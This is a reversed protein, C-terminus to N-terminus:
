NIEKVWINRFQIRDGHHQLGIPGRAPLDPLPESVLVQQGNLYVTMRDDVLSILFANWEGLPKDANIMPICSRRLKQDLKKNVRYGNIEGSGLEQCWINAQCNLIGRFLVGSDGADLRPRTIRKGADDLLFDGNWLVIPHPKMKPEDPFRWEIYFLADGYSQKTWLSKDFHKPQEAQGDYNIVGDEIVWHGEHGPEVKWADLDGGTFLPSFGQDRLEGEKLSGGSTKLFAEFVDESQVPTISTFLLCLILPVLLLKM